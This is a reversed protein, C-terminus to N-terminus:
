HLQLNLRFAPFLVLIGDCPRQVTLQDKQELLLPDAQHSADRKRRREQRSVRNKLGLGEPNM